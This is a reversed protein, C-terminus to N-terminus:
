EFVCPKESSILFERLIVLNYQFPCSLEKSELQCMKINFVPSLFGNSPWSATTVPPRTPPSIPTLSYVATFNQHM